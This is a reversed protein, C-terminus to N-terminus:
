GIAVGEISLSDGRRRGGVVYAALHEALSLVCFHRQQFLCLNRQLTLYTRRSPLGTDRAAAAAAAM